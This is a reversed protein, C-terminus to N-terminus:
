LINNNEEDSSIGLSNIQDQLKLQMMGMLYQATLQTLDMSSDTDVATSEESLETLMQGVAQEDSLDSGMYERIRQIYNRTEKFPPIGGYKSVNGSGANYAALALDIDGNYQNLKESLYKAGGMINSRADFPNEVGLSRATSPMLQMVGQAGASSVANARFNSEAKAVAKLLAQPVQYTQSAEAFISDMDEPVNLRQSTRKFIDSFSTSGTGSTSGFTTNYNKAATQGIGQMQNWFANMYNYISEYGSYYNSMKEDGTTNFDIYYIINLFFLVLKNHRIESENAFM